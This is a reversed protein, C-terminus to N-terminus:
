LLIFNKLIQEGSDHSKEPHYQLGYINDKQIASVFPYEYDTVNLVDTKDHCLLHYSHVFYFEAYVPVEISLPSEKMWRVHNWGMHPVKYKLTDSVKFKVVDADFWALGEANGEESFNAMIQMGLCIGLIPVKKVKVAEYLTDWLQLKKLNGVANKFHGVGPMILKDAETIDSPASSISANVGIRYLKRKVSNLNGMGYDIIVIKNNM